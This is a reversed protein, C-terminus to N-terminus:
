PCRSARASFNPSFDPSATAHTSGDACGDRVVFQRFWVGSAGIVVHTANDECGSNGYEGSLVTYNINPVQVEDPLYDTVSCGGHYEVGDVMVLLSDADEEDPTFTCGGAVMLFKGASAAAAADQISTFAHCWSTGNNNGWGEPCDVEGEPPECHVYIAGDCDYESSTDVCNPDAAMAHQPAVLLYTLSLLWGVKTSRRMVGGRVHHQPAKNRSNNRSGLM